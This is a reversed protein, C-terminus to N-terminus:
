LVKRVNQFQKVQVRSKTSAIADHRHGFVRTSQHAHKWTFLRVTLPLRKETRATLDIRYLVYPITRSVDAHSLSAVEHSTDTHLKESWQWM